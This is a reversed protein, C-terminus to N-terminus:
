KENIVLRQNAKAGSIRIVATRGPLMVEVDAAKLSGLGLTLAVAFWTGCRNM